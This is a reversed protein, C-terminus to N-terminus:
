IIPAAEIYINQSNLKTIMNLVNYKFKKKIVEHKTIGLKLCKKKKKQCMTPSIHWISSPCSSLTDNRRVIKTKTGFITNFRPNVQGKQM